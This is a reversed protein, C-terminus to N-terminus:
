LPLEMQGAMGTEGSEKGSDASGQAKKKRATKKSGSISTTPEQQIGPEDEAM